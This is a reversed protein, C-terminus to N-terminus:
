LAMEAYDDLLAAMWLGLLVREWLYELAHICKTALIDTKKTRGSPRFSTHTLQPMSHIPTSLITRTEPLQFRNGAGKPNQLRCSMSFPCVNSQMSNM